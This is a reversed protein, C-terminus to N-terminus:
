ANLICKKINKIKKYLGQEDKSHGMKYALLEIEKITPNKLLYSTIHSM